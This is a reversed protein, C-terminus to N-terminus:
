RKEVRFNQIIELLEQPTHAIYAAGAEKLVAESKSGWTVGVSPLGDNKAMLIDASSDGIVLGKESDPVKLFERAKMLPHASPKEMEVMDSGVIVEFYDSLGVNQADAQAGKTVKNTVIAMKDGHQACSKIVEGMGEYLHIYDAAIKAYFKRYTQILQAMEESSFSKGEALSALIQSLPFGMKSKVAELTPQPLHHAQFAMQIARSIGGSTEAITGDFDFYLIM